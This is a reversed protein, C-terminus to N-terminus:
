ARAAMVQVDSAATSQNAARADIRALVQGTKVADGVEVDLAVVAGAVQAALVTQRVAEAVGDLGTSHAPGVTATM